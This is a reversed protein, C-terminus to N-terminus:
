ACGMGMRLATVSWSMAGAAKTAQTASACGLWVSVADAATLLLASRHSSTQARTVRGALTVCAAPCVRQWSASGMATATLRRVHRKSLAGRGSGVLRARASVKAWACAMGVVIRPSAGPVQTWTRARPGPGALTAAARAKRYATVTAQAGPLHAGSKIATPVPGVLTVNACGSTRARAMCVRAARSRTVRVERGARAASASAAQTAHAMCVRPRRPNAFWRTVSVGVTGLTACARTPQM